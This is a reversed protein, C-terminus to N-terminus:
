SRSWPGPANIRCISNEPNRLNLGRSHKTGTERDERPEIQLGATSLSHSRPSLLTGGRPRMKWMQRIPHNFESLDTTGLGSARHRRGMRQGRPHSLSHCPHTSVTIGSGPSPPWLLDRRHLASISGSLAWCSAASSSTSIIASIYLLYSRSQM